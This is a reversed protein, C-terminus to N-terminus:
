GNERKKREKMVAHIEKWSHTICCILSLIKGDKQATARQYHEGQEIPGHCLECEYPKQAKPTKIITRNGLPM